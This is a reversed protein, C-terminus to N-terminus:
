YLEIIEQQEDAWQPLSGTASTHVNHGHVKGDAGHLRGREAARGGQSGACSATVLSASSVVKGRQPPSFGTAKDDPRQRSQEQPLLTHTHTPTSTCTPLASYPHGLHEQAGGAPAASGQVLRLLRGCGAMLFCLRALRAMCIRCKRGSSFLSFFM